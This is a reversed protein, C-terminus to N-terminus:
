NAKVRIEKTLIEGMGQAPRIVQFRMLKKRFFVLVNVGIVNRQVRKKNRKKETEKKLQFLFFISYFILWM